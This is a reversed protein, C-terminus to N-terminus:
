KVNADRQVFNVELKRGTGQGALIGLARSNQSFVAIRSGPDTLLLATATHASARLVRGVLGMHTVLPTGPRGGTAYGRSITISDLVRAGLPRWSADVPLQVLARLRKLEALDEGNALLRSELDAVRAQLRENEERVSVLDFYREWFGTGVDQIYRMPKLVAGSLELGINAAFDDLTRTRQNWSYMGLFLILLVGAFILIRRLSM